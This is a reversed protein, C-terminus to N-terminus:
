EGEKGDCPGGANSAFECYRCNKKNKGPTKPFSCDMNYEGSKTFSENLFRNFSTWAEKSSMTGHPPVFRQVRDGSWPDDPDNPPFIGVPYEPPTRVFPELLITDTKYLPAPLVIQPQTVYPYLAADHESAEISVTGEPDLRMAMVRFTDGDLDLIDNTVTIIDGIDVNLLEQTANFMIQRGVRSKKYIMRAIDEAIHKNTIGPYQFEGILPESNDEALDGDETYIVSQSSWEKDPDIYNLRVENFKRDKKEGELEMNGIYHEKTVDFASTVTSSQIDTPHGGDEVKLKYTGQSFPMAARSNAILSKLTE